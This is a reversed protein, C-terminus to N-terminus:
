TQTDLRVVNEFLCVGSWPFQGRPNAPESQAAFSLLDTSNVRHLTVATKLKSRSELPKWGFLRFFDEGDAPAFKLPTGADTLLNGMEKQILPLIGPSMIDNVWYRFNKIHSLDYALAGAESEDLYGILGESVVLINKGRLALDQFLKIREQRESLDLAIREHACHAKEGKLMDKMYDTIGPLDIDVWILEAPLDLRFPRTDLGSALNVVMDIGQKVYEMVFADFLYTRAVFSWSNERGAAMAKVIQEGTVGALMRAYSDHFVADPHESEDARYVAVWRATDSIDRILTNM